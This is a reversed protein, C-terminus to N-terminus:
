GSPNPVLSDQAEDLGTPKEITSVALPQASKLIVFLLPARRCKIESVIGPKRLRAEDVM